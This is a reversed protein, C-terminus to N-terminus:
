MKQSEVTEGMNSAPKDTKEDTSGIHIHQCIIEPLITDGCIVVSIHTSAVSRVASVNWRLPSECTTKGDGGDPSAHVWGGTGVLV